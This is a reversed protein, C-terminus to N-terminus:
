RLSILEDAISYLIEQRFDENYDCNGLVVLGIEEEPIIMLFSRFGKDGGFHGIASYNKLEYKQFGLIQDKDSFDTNNIFHILWKSLDYSSSNLTSSPAHKRNYPYTKIVFVKTKGKISHPYARLSDSILYYRFESIAMDSKVLVEDKIFDDFNRGSTIEVVYGLIEYGLNSYHYNSGPKTAPKLKLSEVYRKLATDSRENKSWEYKRIDPLGSTHELLHRITIKKAYDNQYNLNPAIEILLDDYNVLQLAVLKKIGQSTFLKSISATHFTTNKTVRTDFDISAFGYGKAILISDELTVGISLGPIQYKMMSANVISDVKETISEINQANASQIVM